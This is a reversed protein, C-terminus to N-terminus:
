LKLRYITYRHMGDDITTEPRMGLHLLSQEMGMNDPHAACILDKKEYMKAYDMLDMNLRLMINRGRFPELVVCRSLEATTVPDLDAELAHEACEQPNMFLGSSAIMTGNDLFCGNVYTWTNDFFYKEEALIPVWWEKALKRGLAKVVTGTLVKLGILDQKKLIRYYM